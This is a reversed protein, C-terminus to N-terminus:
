SDGYVKKYAEEYPESFITEFRRTAPIYIKYKVTGNSLSVFAIKGEAENFLTKKGDFGISIYFLLHDLKKLHISNKEVLCNVELVLENVLNVIIGRANVIDVEKNSEYNIIFKKIEKPESVGFGLLYVPYRSSINKSQKAVISKLEESESRQLSIWSSLFFMSLVILLRKM